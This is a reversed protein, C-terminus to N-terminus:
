EKATMWKDKGLSAKRRPNRPLPAVIKPSEVEMPEAEPQSIDDDQSLDDDQSIDDHSM